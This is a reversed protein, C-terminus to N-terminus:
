LPDSVDGIPPAPSFHWMRDGANLLQQKLMAWFAWEREVSLDSMTEVIMPALEFNYRDGHQTALLDKLEMTLEGTLQGTLRRLLGQYHALIERIHPVRVVEKICDELWDLVDSRYSICAIEDLPLGDLSQDTPDDGHLTLYLVKSTSRQGTAYAHYRRLQAPQDPADIKNEIVICASDTEILIDARSDDDIRVERRVVATEVSVDSIGLPKLFRTM